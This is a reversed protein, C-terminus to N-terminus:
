WIELASYYHFCMRENEPLHLSIVFDGNEHEELNNKLENLLEIDKLMTKPFKLYYDYLKIKYDTLKFSKKEKFSNIILLIRICDNIYDSFSVNNLM